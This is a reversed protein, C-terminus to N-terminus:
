EKKIINVLLKKLENKQELSLSMIINKLVEDDSTYNNIDKMIDVYMQITNKANKYYNIKEEVSLDKVKDYDFLDDELKDIFDILKLLRKNRNEIM